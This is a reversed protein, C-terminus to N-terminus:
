TEQNYKARMHHGLATLDRQAQDITNKRKLIFEKEKDTFGEKADAKVLRQLGGHVHVLLTNLNQLM